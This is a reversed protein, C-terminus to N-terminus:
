KPIKGGNTNQIENRGSQLLAIALLMLRYAMKPAFLGSFTCGGYKVPKRHVTCNSGCCTSSSTGYHLETYTV